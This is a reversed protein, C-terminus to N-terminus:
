ETLQCPRCTNMRLNEVGLGNKRIAMKLKAVAQEALGNGEHHYTSSFQVDIGLDVMAAEYTFSFAPGSDSRIELPQGFTSFISMLM